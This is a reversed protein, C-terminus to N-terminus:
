INLQMNYTIFNELYEEMYIEKKGEHKKSFIFSGEHKKVSWGQELANMIFNMKLITKNDVKVNEHM